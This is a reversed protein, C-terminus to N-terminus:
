GRRARQCRDLHGATACEPQRQRLGAGTGPRTTVFMQGNPAFAIDWPNTLGDQVVRAVLTPAALAPTPLLITLSLALTALTALRVRKM